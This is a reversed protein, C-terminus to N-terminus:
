LLNSCALCRQRWLTRACRARNMRPRLSGSRFRCDFSHTRARMIRSEEFYAIEDDGRMAARFADRDLLTPWLKFADDGEAYANQVIRLLRRAERDYGAHAFVEQAADVLLQLTTLRQQGDIVDRTELEATATAQQQLVVAGM